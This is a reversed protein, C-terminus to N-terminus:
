VQKKRSLRHTLQKTELKHCPICLTRLNEPGCLGGGEIVPIIHDIQYPSDPGIGHQKAYRKLRALVGSHSRYKRGSVTRGFCKDRVRTYRAKLNLTDLGCISCVGQDRAEIIRVYRGACRIYFENVCADSCWRRRPPRVPSDCWTCRLKARNLHRRLSDASIRRRFRGHQQIWEIAHM